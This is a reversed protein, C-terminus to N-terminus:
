PDHDWERIPYPIEDWLVCALEPIRRAKQMIFLTHAERRHYPPRLM